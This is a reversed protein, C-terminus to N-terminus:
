PGLCRAAYDPLAAIIQQPRPSESPIRLSQMVIHHEVKVQKARQALLRLTLNRALVLAWFLLALSAIGWLMCCIEYPKTWSEDLHQSAWAVTGMWVIGAMFVSARRVPAKSGHPFARLRKRAKWAIWTVSLCSLLALGNVTGAQALWLLLYGSLAAASILSFNNGM